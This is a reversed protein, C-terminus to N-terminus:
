ENLNLQGEQDKRARVRCDNEDMKEQIESIASELSFRINEKDLINEFAAEQSYELYYLIPRGIVPSMFVGSCIDHGGPDFNSLDLVFGCIYIDSYESLLELTSEIFYEDDKQLGTSGFLGEVSVVASSCSESDWLKTSISLGSRYPNFYYLKEILESDSM